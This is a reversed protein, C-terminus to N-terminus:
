VEDDEDNEPFHEYLFPAARIGPLRKMLVDLQEVSPKEGYRSLHAEALLEREKEPPLEGSVNFGM